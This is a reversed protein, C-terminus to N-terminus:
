SLFQYIPVDFVRGVIAWSAQTVIDGLTVGVFFPLSRRYGKSGGFRQVLVKATWAILFPLFFASMTFTNAMVYGVPHLPFNSLRMRLGALMLTFGGGVCAALVGNKDWGTPSSALSHMQQMGYQVKWMAYANSKATAAGLEYFYSLSSWWGVALATATGIAVWALVTRWRLGVSDAIKLGEMLYPLSQARIDVHVLDFYGGAVIAKDSLNQTGLVANAVRHPTWTAPAFTWQGGAEARIRAGSLVYAVYVGIIMLAFLPPIGTLMMMLACMLVCGLALLGLLRVTRVEDPTLHRVLSKWHYRGGWGVMMAFAIWAGAAQEEKYPFRAAATDGVELGFAAGVVYLLRTVLWFFWCSFSISSPVFYALGIAMPYFGLPFAPFADWPPSQFIPIKIYSAKLQVAPIAPYWDRLALLSQMVAPIAFGLWFLPRRLLDDQPDTLQLPLVTIPFTLREQRIWIRHLVAALGIWAGTLLMLYLSWFLIPVTWAQWPVGSQGRYLADIAKPDHLIPLHSLLPVYRSWQPQTESFYPFFGMGPMLFRLGGFGIIPITSTLVIYGMLLEERRFPLWRRLLRVFLLYLATPMMLSYCILYISRAIESDAVWWVMVVQTLVILLALRPRIRAITDRM